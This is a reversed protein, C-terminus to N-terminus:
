QSHQPIMGAQLHQAAVHIFYKANFLNKISEGSTSDSVDHPFRSLSMELVRLTRIATGSTRM